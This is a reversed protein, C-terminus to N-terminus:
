FRRVHYNNAADWVLKALEKPETRVQEAYREMNSTFFVVQPLFKRYLPKPIVAAALMESWLRHSDNWGLTVWAPNVDYISSTEFRLSKFLSAANPPPVRLKTGRPSLYTGMRDLLSAAQLLRRRGPSFSIVTLLRNLHLKESFSAAEANSPRRTTRPHLTSYDLIRDSFDPSDRLYSELKM